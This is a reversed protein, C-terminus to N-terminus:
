LPQRGMFQLNNNNICLIIAFLNIMCHITASIFHQIYLVFTKTTKYEFGCICEYALIFILKNGQVRGATCFPQAGSPNDTGAGSTNGTPIIKLSTFMMM